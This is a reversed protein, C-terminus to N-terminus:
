IVANRTWVHEQINHKLEYLIQKESKFLKTSKFSDLPVAKLNLLAFNSQETLTMDPDMHSVVMERDATLSCGVYYNMDRPIFSPLKHSM